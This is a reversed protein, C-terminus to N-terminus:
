TGQEGNNDKNKKKCLLKAKSEGNVHFLHWKGQGWFM